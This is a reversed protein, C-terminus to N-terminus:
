RRNRFNKADRAIIENIKQRWIVRLSPPDPHTTRIAVKSGVALWDVPYGAERLEQCATEVVKKGVDSPETFPVGSAIINPCCHDYEDGITTEFDSYKLPAHNHADPTDLIDEEPHQEEELAQLPSMVETEEDEETMM